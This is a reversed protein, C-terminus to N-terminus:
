QASHIQLFGGVIEEVASAKVHRGDEKFVDGIMAFEFSPWYSIDPLEWCLQGVAARLTAKSQLNARVVDEGTWTEALAVPSVTFVIKKTPFKAWIANVITQGANSAMTQPRIGVAQSPM